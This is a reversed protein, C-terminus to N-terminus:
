LGVGYITIGYVCGSVWGSKGVILNEVNIEDENEDVGFLFIDNINDNLKVNDSNNENGAM